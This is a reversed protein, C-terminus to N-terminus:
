GFDKGLELNMLCEIILVVLKFRLLAVLTVNM